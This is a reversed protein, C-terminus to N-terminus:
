LHIIGKRLAVSTATLLLMILAILLFKVDKPDDLYTLANLVFLAFLILPAIKSSLFSSVKEYGKTYLLEARKVFSSAEESVSPPPAPTPERSPHSSTM